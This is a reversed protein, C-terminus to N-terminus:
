PTAVDRNGLRGKWLARTKQKHSNAVDLRHNLGIQSISIRWKFVPQQCQPVAQGTSRPYSPGHEFHRVFEQRL